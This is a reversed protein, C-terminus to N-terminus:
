ATLDLVFHASGDGGHERLRQHAVYTGHAGAYAGTGGVIAFAATGPATSGMGMITGAQLHFTHLEVSGDAGHSGHSAFALRASTFSGIAARTRPDVLEGVVTGRDGAQIREGPRRSTSQLVLNRGTLTLRQPLRAASGHSATAGTASGAAAGLGVAGGLAVLGRSLLQRRSQVSM